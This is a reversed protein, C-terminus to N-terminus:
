YNSKQHPLASVLDLNETLLGKFGQDRALDKLHALTEFDLKAGEPNKINGKDKHRNRYGHKNRICVSYDEKWSINHITEGITMIYSVLVEKDLSHADIAEISQKILSEVEILKGLDEELKEKNYKKKAEEQEKTNNPKKPKQKDKSPAAAKYYPENPFLEALIAKVTQHHYVRDNVDLNSILEQLVLEPSKTAITIAQEITKPIASVEGPSVLAVLGKEKVTNFPTVTGEL